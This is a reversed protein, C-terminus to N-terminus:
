IYMYMMHEGTIKQSNLVPVLGTVLFCFASAGVIPVLFLRVLSLHRPDIRGLGLLDHNDVELAAAQMALRTGVDKNDTSPMAAATVRLMVRNLEAMDVADWRTPGGFVRQVSLEGEQLGLSYKFRSM